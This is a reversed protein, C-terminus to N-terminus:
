RAGLVRSSRQRLRASRTALYGSLAADLPMSTDMLTFDIQMRGCGMRLREHFREVEQRYRVRLSRPDALLRGSSELGEFMTPGSFPFTLEARDWVAWVILEHRRHRLHKLGKLVVDADDLLDSILIILTRHSLREALEDLIRGLSTKARGTQSALERVLTKWQHASNSPKIFEAIHEDFLALGVADQQQLTLYSIAAAMATAYEYKTLSADASAYNMSESRDVAVVLSLNTEQEYEKIYYKDTRGFVKWDIRRLDDGQTYARHDAFEVSAGHHPSHHMGSFFGEVILRARLDLGHIKALVSPDLYRRYDQVGQEMAM